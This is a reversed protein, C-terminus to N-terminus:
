KLSETDFPSAVLYDHANTTLRVLGRTSEIGYYGTDDYNLIVLYVLYVGVSHVVM